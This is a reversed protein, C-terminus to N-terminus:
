NSRVPNKVSGWSWPESFKTNLRTMAKFSLQALRPSRHALPSAEAAHQVASTKSLVLQVEPIDSPRVPAFQGAQSDVTHNPGELPPLSPTTEPRLRIKRLYPELPDRGLQCCKPYQAFHTLHDLALIPVAENRAKKFDGFQNCQYLCATHRISIGFVYKFHHCSLTTLRFLDHSRQIEFANGILTWSATTSSWTIASCGSATLRKRPPSRLSCPKKIPCTM